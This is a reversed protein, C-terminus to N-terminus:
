GFVVDTIFFQVLFVPDQLQHSRCTNQFNLFVQKFPQRSIKKTIQLEWIIKIHEINERIDFSKRVNKKWFLSYIYYVYYLNFNNPSKTPQATKM